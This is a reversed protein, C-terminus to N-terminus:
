SIAKHIVLSYFLFLWAVACIDAIKKCLRKNFSYNGYDPMLETSVPSMVVPLCHLQMSSDLQFQSLMLAYLPVRQNHQKNEMAYLTLTMSSCFLLFLKKGM